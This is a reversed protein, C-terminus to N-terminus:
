HTKHIQSHLPPHNQPQQPLHVDYIKYNRNTFYHYPHLIYFPLQTKENSLNKNIINLPPPFSPPWKHDPFFTPNDSCWTLSNLVYKKFLRLSIKRFHQVLGSIPGSEYHFFLVRTVLQLERTVPEFGRTVPEFGRTWSNLNSCYFWSNSLCYVYSNFSFIGIEFYQIERSVLINIKMACCIRFKLRVRLNQFVMEVVHCQFFM